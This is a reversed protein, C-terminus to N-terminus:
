VRGGGPSGHSPGRFEGILQKLFGRLTGPMFSHFDTM